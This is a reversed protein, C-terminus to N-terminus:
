THEQTLQPHTLAELALLQDEAWDTADRWQVEVEAQEDVHAKMWGEDVVSAEGFRVVVEQGRRPLTAGIPQVLHMGYHFFPMLVPRAECILRGIGIKIYINKM